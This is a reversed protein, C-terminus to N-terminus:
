KPHTSEVNPPEEGIIEDCLDLCERCIAVDVTGVVPLDVLVQKGCFSCLTQPDFGDRARDVCDNCIFCGPGAILKAVDSQSRGCFSCILLLGKGPGRGRRKWGRGDNDAAEIMQQVRQHSIGIAKAIERVSAGALQVRRLALQEEVRAHALAAEAEVRREIALRAADFRPDNDISM